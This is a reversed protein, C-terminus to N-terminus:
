DNDGTGSGNVMSEFGTTVVKLVVGDVVIELQRPKDQRRVAVKVTTARRVNNHDNWDVNIVLEDGQGDAHWTLESM